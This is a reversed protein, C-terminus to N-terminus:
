GDQPMRLSVHDIMISVMSDHSVNVYEVIEQETPKRDALVTDHITAITKPTAFKVPHESRAANSM